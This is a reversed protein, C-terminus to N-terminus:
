LLAAALCISPLAAACAACFALLVTEGIRVSRPTGRQKRSDSTVM